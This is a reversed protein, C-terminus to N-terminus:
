LRNSLYFGLSLWNAVFIRPQILEDYQMQTRLSLRMHKLFMYHLVANCEATYSKVRGIAAKPAFVTASAEWGFHKLFLQPPVSVTLNVGWEIKRREGKKIGYLKQSGRDDFIQQNRIRTIKGGILGLYAAAGELFNIGAGLSYISYGPSNYDTYLYRTKVQGTDTRQEWKKWLQTRVELGGQLSIRKYLGIQINNRFRFNDETKITLSDFYHRFGYENYIFTRLSFHKTKAWNNISINYYANIQPIQSSEIGNEYKVAHITTFFDLVLTNIVDPERKTAHLQIKRPLTDGVIEVSRCITDKSTTEDPSELFSCETVSCEIVRQEAGQSWLVVIDPTDNTMIYEPECIEVAARAIQTCFTSLIVFLLALTECPRFM